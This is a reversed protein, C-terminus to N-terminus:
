KQLLLPPEELHSSMIASPSRKKNPNIPIDDCVPWKILAQLLCVSNLLLYKMLHHQCHLHKLFGDKHDMKVKPTHM